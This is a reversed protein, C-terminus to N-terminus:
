IFDPATIPSSPNPKSKAFALRPNPCLIYSSFLSKNSKDYTDKKCLVLLSTNKELNFPKIAFVLSNKKPSFISSVSNIEMDDGILDVNLFNSIDSAKANVLNHKILNM